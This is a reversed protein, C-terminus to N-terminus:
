KGFYLWWRAISSGIKAERLEKIKDNNKVYVDIQSEVLTNSKLEPYLSAIVIYSDDAKIDFTETEYEMYREVIDAVQAEIKVNEEEYMAIKDDIPLSSAVETSIFITGALGGIIMLVGFIISVTELVDKCTGYKMNNVVLWNAVLLLIGVGVIVLIM